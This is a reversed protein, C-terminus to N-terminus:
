GPIRKLYHRMPAQRIWKPTVPVLVRMLGFGRSLWRERAPSWPLGFMERVEPPLLGATLFRALPMVVRIWLPASRAALLEAAVRRTTEDVTLRAIQGDWYTKFDETTAPWLKAPMGLASGLMGYDRYVTEAEEATLAPFVLNYVQMGSDYLTAAVWLQLAPGQADYSHPSDSGDSNVPRHARHVRAVMSARQQPTGNTLAYIYSLTGHLRKLPQVAFSSHRAVGHGIAPNALQLLIARGGGALMISEPAIDQIRRGEARSNSRSKSKM